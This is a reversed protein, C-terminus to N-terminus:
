DEQETVEPAFQKGEACRTLYDTLERDPVLLRKGVRVTKMHGEHILRRATREGCRLRAGVERTTLLRTNGDPNNAAMEVDVSKTNHRRVVHESVKDILGDQVVIEAVPDGGDTEIAISVNSAGRSPVVILIREGNDVVIKV